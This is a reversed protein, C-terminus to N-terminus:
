KVCAIRLLKAELEETTGWGRFLRAQCESGMVAWRKRNGGTGM